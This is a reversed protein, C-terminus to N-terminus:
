PIIKIDLSIPLADVPDFGADRWIKLAPSLMDDLCSDDIIRLLRTLELSWGLDEGHPGSDVASDITRKV